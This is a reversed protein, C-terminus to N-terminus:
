GVNAVLWRHLDAGAALRRTSWEAFRGTGISAPAAVIWRVQFSTHRLLDARHHDDPYPKPVRKLGEGVIDLSRGRGLDDLIETLESGTAEDGVAARWRDTTPFAAGWAFGVQDPALRVFLTPATRRTPGEWWRFLLHDKYTPAGPSFRVDNNIPSISGNVKPSVVLDPSVTDRLAEGVVAAFAKAPRALQEEYRDRQDAFWAKDHAPLEALLALGDAPFGDFGNM